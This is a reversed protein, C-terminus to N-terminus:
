EADQEDAKKAEELEKQLVAIQGHAEALQGSLQQNQHQLSQFMANIQTENM